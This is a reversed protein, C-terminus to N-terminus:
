EFEDWSVERGPYAVKEFPWKEQIWNKVSSFLAEDLKNAVESQRVWMIIIANYSPNESPLIYLCGLCETEDLNM